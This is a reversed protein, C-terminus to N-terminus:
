RVSYLAKLTKRADGFEFVVDHGFLRRYSEMIKDKHADHDAKILVKITPRPNRCLTERFLTSAGIDTVPLSYGVFVVTDASLLEDYALSWLYKLVPEAMLQAKSLVPPVIFPEADLHKLTYEELAKLNPSVRDPYPKFWPEFHYFSDLPFPPQTGRLVHWNISGHLKLLLSNTRDMFVRMLDTLIQAPRCFFGYGADPGWILPGNRGLKYFAADLIDDYNFTICTAGINLCYSAFEELDERNQDADRLKIMQRSFVVKVRSLLHRFQAELGKEQDYPMGGDLRTLLREFDIEDGAVQTIESEFLHQIAPYNTFEDKLAVVDPFRGVLCPADPVFARTFGAGLVFVTKTDRSAQNM